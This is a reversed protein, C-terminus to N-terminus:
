RNEELHHWPIGRVEAVARLPEALEDIKAISNRDFSFKQGDRRKVIYKRSHLKPLLLKAPGKLLPVSEKMRTEEVVTIEDWAFVSWKAGERSYFGHECLYVRHGSLHVVFWLSIGTFSFALLALVVVAVLKPTDSPDLGDRIEVAFVAVVACIMVLSAIAGLMSLIWAALVNVISPKLERLVTGLSERTRTSAPIETQIRFTMEEM